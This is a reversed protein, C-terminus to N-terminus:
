SEKDTVIGRSRDANPIQGSSKGTVDLRRNAQRASYQLMSDPFRRGCSAQESTV